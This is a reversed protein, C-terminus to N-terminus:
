VPQVLDRLVDQTGLGYRRYRGSRWERAVPVVRRLHSAPLAARVEEHALKERAARLHGADLQEGLAELRDV